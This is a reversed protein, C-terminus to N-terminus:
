LISYLMRICLAISLLGFIKKIIGVPLTYVLKVGLPAVFFSVISIFFVAPLYVYGVAWPINLNADSHLGTLMYGVGGAVTLFVGVASSTGIAKKVDINQWILFPVTLAGGAVSVLGSILGIGGGSAFLAPKPLITRSPKPKKNSFMTYAVYSMFVTFIIGLYVSNTKSAIFSSIFVGIMAGPAMSRVVSWIIGKRKQQAIMSSLTTFIISTMATGLALHLANEESIGCYIFILTLIPVMYAGGGIGLLGALFGAGAGLAMFGIILGFTLEM